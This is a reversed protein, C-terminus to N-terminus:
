RYLKHLQGVAPLAKRCSTSSNRCRNLQEVDLPVTGEDFFATEVTCNHPATGVAPPATGVAPPATGVAPPVKRVAPPVTGAGTPTIGVSPPATGM